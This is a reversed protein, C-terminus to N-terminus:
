IVKRQREIWCTKNENKNKIKVRRKSECMEHRPQSSLRSGGLTRRDMGKGMNNVWVIFVRPIVAELV